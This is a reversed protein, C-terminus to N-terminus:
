SKPQNTWSATNKTQQSWSIKGLTKLIMTYYSLNQTMVKLLVGGGLKPIKQWSTTHKTQNTWAM